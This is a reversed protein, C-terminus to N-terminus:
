SKRVVADHDEVRCTPTIEWGGQQKKRMRKVDHSFFCEGVVFCAKTARENRM